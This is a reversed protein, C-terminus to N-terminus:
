RYCNCSWGLQVLLLSSVIELALANAEERGAAPCLSGSREPLFLSVVDAGAIFPLAPQAGAM